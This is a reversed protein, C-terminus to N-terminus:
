MGRKLFSCCRSFSYSSLLSETYTSTHAQSVEHSDSGQQWTAPLGKSRSTAIDPGAHQKALAPAETGLMSMPKLHLLLRRLPRYVLIAIPGRSCESSRLLSGSNYRWADVNWNTHAGPRGLSLSGRSSAAALIMVVERRWGPPPQAYIGPAPSGGDKDLVMSLHVM